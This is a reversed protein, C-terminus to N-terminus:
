REGRWYGRPTITTAVPEAHRVVLMWGSDGWDPVQVLSVLHEHLGALSPIQEVKADLLKAWVEVQDASAMTLRAHPPTLEPHLSLATPHPLPHDFITEAIENFVNGYWWPQPEDPIKDMPVTGKPNDTGNAGTGGM